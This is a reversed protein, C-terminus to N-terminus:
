LSIDDFRDAFRSRRLPTAQSAPSTDDNSALPVVEKEGSVSPKRKLYPFDGQTIIIPMDFM